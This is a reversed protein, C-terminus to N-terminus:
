KMLVLKKHSVFSGAQIRYLYMGSAVSQGFDNTASWQVMHRGAQYQKNVLTRVKQGSINYIELVVETAEPLDFAINTVPNFPNPYNNYLAFEEPLSADKISSLVASVDVTISRPGGSAETVEFGDHAHVTWDMTVSSIEGDILPQALHGYPISYLTGTIPVHMRVDDFYVSGHDDGSVQWYEVGTNMYVAGEPVMAMVDKHHWVSASDSADIVSSLVSGLPGWDADWFSIFLYASNVGQGVWDDAHSMMWGDVMVEAGPTVGMDALTHSQYVPTANPYTGSYQGWVKLAQGGSHPELVAGTQSGFIAAGATDVVYNTLTTPWVIWGFEPEMSGAVGFEFGPNKQMQPPLHMMMNDNWLDMTYHIPNNDPDVSPTWIVAVEEMMNDPNVNVAFNNAPAVLSFAGPPANSLTVEAMNSPGSEHDDFMATVYYHYTTWDMGLDWYEHVDSTGSNGVMEMTFDPSVGRYVNYHMLDRTQLNLSPYTPNTEETPAGLIHYMLDEKPHLMVYDSSHNVEVPDFYGYYRSMSAGDGATLNLMARIMLDGTFMAGRSWVGGSTFYQHAPFDVAEDQSYGEPDGEVSWDEDHTLIVYFDGTMAIPEPMDLYAWGDESMTALGNAIIEGPVGGLAMGEESENDNDFLIIRIPGHTYDPWGAEWIKSSISNIEFEGDVGFRTGFGIGEGDEWGQYYYSATYEVGSDYRGEVNEVSVPPEWMLHVDDGYGTATLNVPAETPGVTLVVANSPQSMVPEPVEPLSYEAVVDYTIDQNGVVYQIGSWITNDAGSVFATPQGNKRVMYGQLPNYPTVTLVYDGADADSWGDVIIYYTEGGTLMVNSIFSTWANIDDCGASGYHDDDCASEGDTTMPMLGLSNYVYVKTDYTSGCLDVDIIIDTAPTLSYVVDSAASEVSNADEPCVEDYDHTYGVTTGTNTYPLEEIVTADEMTDGGQRMNNGPNLMMITEPEYPAPQDWSLSVQYGMSEGTLNMPSPVDIPALPTACAEPSPDSVLDDEPGVDATDVEVVTYCYQTEPVVDHDVYSLADLSDELVVGDRYLHYMPVPIPVRFMDDHPAFGSAVVAYEAGAVFIEWSIESQWTGGDVVIRYVGDDLCFDEAGFEGAALGGEMQVIGTVTDTITYTNGNWGDGFSDYMNIVLANTTCESYTCSGDDLNALPDFNDAQPDMCGSVADEWAIEFDFAEFGMFGPIRVHVTTGLYPETPGYYGDVGPAFAVELVTTGVDIFDNFYGYADQGCQGVLQVMESVPLTVVLFGPTTPLDLSFWAEGGDYSNVGFVGTYPSECVDGTFYCSGDDTTATEDYNLANPDTCGWVPPDGGVTFDTSGEFGISLEYQLWLNGSLDTLTFVNGNWGDGFSDYAKFTYNGDALCVEAPAPSGGTALIEGASNVIEWSVESQWSGGDCVGVYETDGPPCDRDRTTADTNSFPSVQPRVGLPYKFPNHSTKIRRKVVQREQGSRDQNELPVYTAQSTQVMLTDPGPVAEWELTVKEIGGTATLSPYTEYPAEELTWSFPGPDYYNIWAIIYTEGQEVEIQLYTQLTFDYDDNEAIIDSYGYYDDYDCSGLIAVYTDGDTLGMTSVRLYGYQTATYSFYNDFGDSNNNGIYAPMATACTSPAFVSDCAANSPESEGQTYSATVTFCHVMDNTLGTATYATLETSGIYEGDDFVNYTIFGGCAEDLQQTACLELDWNYLGETFIGDLDTGTFGSPTSGDDSLLFPAMATGDGYVDTEGTVSVKVLGGYSGMDIELEEFLIEGFVGDTTLTGSVINGGPLNNGDEDVFDVSVYASAETLGVWASSYDSLGVSELTYLGAPFYYISSKTTADPWLYALNGIYNFCARDGIQGPRQYDDSIEQRIDEHPDVSVNPNALETIPDSVPLSWELYATGDDTGLSVLDVPSCLGVDEVHACVPDSHPSPTGDDAEQTITYCYETEVLVSTDRYAAEEVTALLAADRYVHYVINVPVFFEFTGAGGGSAPSGGSAVVGGTETELSWSIEGDYSGGGVVLTYTDDDLCIEDSAESGSALGGQASLVGASNTITYTAGNWGDGWSDYMNFVLSNTTCASYTCSGDDTDATPNFNDAQPDLCGYVAPTFSVTFSTPLDYSGAWYDYTRFIVTGASVFTEISGYYGYAYYDSTAFAECSPWADFYYYDPAGDANDDSSTITLYGDDATTFAYYTFGTTATYTGATVDIPISCSDGAFYCSGDDDTATADYNLATADTCGYVASGDVTFTTTASSGTTFTLSLVVSGDATTGTLVNGNWGDGYSDYGNATYEGDILCGVVADNGAAAAVLTGSEDLIEWTVESAYSGGDCVFTIETETDPNPCDRTNRTETVGSSSGSSIGRKAYTSYEDIGLPKRKQMLNYANDNSGRTSEIEPVPAWSLWIDGNYAVAEVDVPTQALAEESVSFYFASEAYYPLFAIFIETGAAAMVTVQSQPSDGFDDNVGLVNTYEGDTGVDCSGLVALWTDEETLGVTSVTVHGDITTTYSFWEEETGTTTNNGSSATFPASCVDGTFYCSGDDLTATADFNLATDDTCGFVDDPGGINVSFEGAGGAAMTEGAENTISWSIESDYSGGGVVLNYTGAPVCLEDTFSDGEELGGSYLETGDSSSLTYTGGNWGDGWSDAGNFFATIDECIEVVSEETAPEIRWSPLSNGSGGWQNLPGTVNMLAGFDPETVVYRDNVNITDGAADSIRWEGYSDDTVAQVVHGQTTILVGEYQEDAAAGVTVTVSAPLANNSSHLTTVYGTTLETLCATTDGLDGYGCYETVFGRVTVSDGLEMWSPGAWWCFVGNWAGSGDQIAFNSNQGLRDIATVIGSTEVYEGELSSGWSGNAGDTYQINYITTVTPTPEVSSVAGPTGNPVWSSQWSAALSNDSTADILELSPGGGDHSTGWDGYDNTGDEYDVFDVVNGGADVIEIDEGGNSLSGSTWTVTDVGANQPPGQYFSANKCVLLYAGAALTTGDAFVHTVGQTFSYGSMDIDATGPNYLEMFEYDNDSGQAGSPNYHIENIVVQATLLNVLVISSVISLLTRM